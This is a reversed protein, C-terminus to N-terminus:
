WDMSWTKSCDTLDNTKLHGSLSKSSITVTVKVKSKTVENTFRHLSKDGGVSPSLQQAILLM